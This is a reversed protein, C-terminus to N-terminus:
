DPPSLTTLTSLPAPFSGSAASAAHPLAAPRPAVAMPQSCLRTGSPRWATALPVTQQAFACFCAGPSTIPHPPHKLPPPLPQRAAGARKLGGLWCAPKQGSGSCSISGTTIKSYRVLHGQLYRRSEQRHKLSRNNEQSGQRRKVDVGREAAPSGLIPRRTAASRRFM